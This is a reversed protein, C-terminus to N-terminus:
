RGFDSAVQTAAERTQAPLAEEAVIADYAERAAEVDGRRLALRALLLRAASAAPEPANWRLAAEAEVRAEEDRELVYLQEAIAYRTMTTPPAEPGALELFGAHVTEFHELATAHEGAYANLQALNGLVSFRDPSKPREREYVAVLRELVNRAEDLRGVHGLTAGLRNLLCAHAVTDRQPHRADELRALGAEFDAIAEDSRGLRHKAEGRDCHLDTWIEIDADPALAAAAADLSSIAADFDDVALEFHGRASLFDGRASPDSRLDAAHGAAALWPRAAETDDLMHAHVRVLNIAAYFATEMDDARVGLHYAAELTARAARIDGRTLVIYGEHLAAAGEVRVDGVESALRRIEALAREHEHGEEGWRGLDEAAQLDAAIRRYAEFLPSPPEETCVGPPPLREIVSAVHEDLAASRFRPVLREWRNRDHELCRLTQETPSACFTESALNWASVYADAAGRADAPVDVAPPMATLPCPEDARALWLAGAVVTAGLALAAAGRWRRGNMARLLETPAHPRAAPDPSFGRTLADRMARSRPREGWLEDFTTAFAFVDSAVTPSAGDALEPALYRPTGRGGFDAVRVTGDADFLVNDPKFDGHIIGREHAADLGAAAAHLAARLETDTRPGSLWQRLTGGRLYEMVIFSADTADDHGVAFVRAVNPHEVSAIRRSEALLMTREDTRSGDSARHRLMKLAVDRRLLPDWARYVVGNAGSGLRDRVRYRGLQVPTSARQGFMRATVFALARREDFTARAPKTATLDDDIGNPSPETM